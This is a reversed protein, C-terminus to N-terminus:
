LIHWIEIEELEDYGYLYRNPLGNLSCIKNENDEFPMNFTSIGCIGFGYKNLPTQLAGLVLHGDNACFYPGYSNIRYKGNVRAVIRKDISLVFAYNDEFGYGTDYIYNAIMFGAARRQTEKFLFFAYTNNYGDTRTRYEQYNWGDRSGQYLLVPALRLGPVQIQQLLWAGENKTIGMRSMKFPYEVTYNKEGRYKCKFDRCQEGKKCQSFMVAMVVKCDWVNFDADNVCTFKTGPPHAVAFAYSDQCSELQPIVSTAIALSTALAAAIFIIKLM